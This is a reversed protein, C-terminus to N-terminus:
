GGFWGWLKGYIWRGPIRFLVYGAPHWGVAVKGRGQMGIRMRGEPNPVTVRAFFLRKEGEAEGKPSVVDVVGRFTRTPYGDLKVAAREGAHLLSLDTEDIGVDVSARSSDVVEAFGDGVALHKGVFTEVHPTTVVGDIPSRLHTRELRERARNVEAAWFNAQVRQIGAETGDNSALARNMQAVATNYKAEAAALSARYDWDALDALITGKKVKAGEGVYVNEVVGEVEPQVQARFGPAVTAEGSVRMPMPCFVLFLAAAVAVALLAARRRKEMALFRRKRELVPGLIQIFPVEKYMLANRLAVTAQGALVKIMELHAESLFDPDTSEFSILGVRGTDDGLPVSYFARLGTEAFYKMFKTRTEERPDDIEEGRQRV